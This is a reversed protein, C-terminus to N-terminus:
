KNGGKDVVFPTLLVGKLADAWLRLDDPTLDPRNSMLAKVVSTAAAKYCNKDKLWEEPKQKGSSGYWGGISFSSAMLLAIHRMEPGGLTRELMQLPTERDFSAQLRIECEQSLSRANSKAAKELAAKLDPAAQLGLH